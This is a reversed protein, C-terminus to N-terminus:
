KAARKAKVDARRQAKDAALKQRDAKRDAV